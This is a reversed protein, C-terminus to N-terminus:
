FVLPSLSKVRFRHRDATVFGCEGQSILQPALGKLRGPVAVGLFPSIHDPEARGTLFPPPYLREPHLAEQDCRIRDEFPM